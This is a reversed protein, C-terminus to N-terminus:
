RAAGNADATATRDAVPPVPDLGYHAVGQDDIEYVETGETVNAQDAALAVAIKNAANHLVDLVVEVAEAPSLDRRVDEVLGASVHGPHWILTDTLALSTTAQASLGPHGDVDIADFLEETAGALLAPRSRISRCLRCDHSRAGRLRVIETLVPDLADLAHVEFLMSEIAAWTEAADVVAPPDAPWTSPLDFLADLVARVRPALDAVFLVQTLAFADPGCAAFFAARQGDDLASVDTAFQWAFAEVAALDPEDALDTPLPLPTLGFVEATTRRVMATTTAGVSTIATLRHLAEAAAGGLEDLASSGSRSTWAATGQHM